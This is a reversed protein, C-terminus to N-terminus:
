FTCYFYESIIGRCLFLALSYKAVDFGLCLVDFGLCLVDFGLCLVDFGLCLVDFGLCLVFM